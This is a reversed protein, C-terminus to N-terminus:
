GLNTPNADPPPYINAGSQVSGLFLPPVGRFAGFRHSDGVAFRIEYDVSAAVKSYFVLYADQGVSVNPGVLESFVTSNVHTQSFFPLVARTHGPLLIATGPPNFGTTGSAVVVFAPAVTGDQRFMSSLTNPASIFYSNGAVLFASVANSIDVGTASRAGRLTIELAIDGKEVQFMRSMITYLNMNAGIADPLSIPLTSAAGAVITIVGTDLIVSRKLAEQLNQPTDVRVIQHRSLIPEDPPPGPKQLALETQATTQEATSGGESMNASMMVFSDGIENPVFSEFNSWAVQVEFDVSNGGVSPVQLTDLLYFVVRGATPCSDYFYDQFYSFPVVLEVPEASSLDLFVGPLSLIQALSSAVSGDSYPVFTLYVAGGQWGNGRPFAKIHLDGRYFKMAAQAYKAQAVILDAPHQYTVIQGPSDASTITFTDLNAYKFAFKKLEIPVAPAAKHAVGQAVASHQPENDHLTEGSSMNADMLVAKASKRSALVITPPKCAATSLFLPAYSKVEFTPSARFTVLLMIPQTFTANPTTLTTVNYLRLTGLSANIPRSAYVNKPANVSDISYPVQLWENPNIYDIRIVKERNMSDFDWMVSPGTVATQYGPDPGFDNYGLCIALRGSVAAPGFLNFKVEIGGRWFKFLSTAFEFPTLSMSEGFVSTPIVQFPFMPMNFLLAGQATSYPLDMMEVLGWRRAFYELTSCDDSCMMDDATACTDVGVMDALWVGNQTGNLSPLFLAGNTTSIPSIWNTPRDRTLSASRKKKPNIGKAAPKASTHEAAKFGDAIKQKAAPPLMPMNGTKPMDSLSATATGEKSLATSISPSVENRADSKSDISGTGINTNNTVQSNGMNPEMVVFTTELDLENQAYQANGKTSFQSM